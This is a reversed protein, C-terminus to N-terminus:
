IFGELILINELDLPLNNEFYIGGELEIEAWIVKLTNVEIAM